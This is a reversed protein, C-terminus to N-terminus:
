KMQELVNKKFELAHAHSPNISLEKDYCDIAEKRRGLFVLANGKAFWANPTRADSKLAKDCCEIALEPHGMMLLTYGKDCLTKPHIPDIKLALDYCVLAEQYRGTKKLIMAIDHWAGLNRPDIDLSKQFCSLAEDHRKLVLLSEGKNHWAYASQPNISIAKDYCRIAEEERGLGASANGKNQWAVNNRPEIALAKDFCEIAKEYQKLSTLAVGKGNWSNSHKPDIAIAKDFCEIAESFKGLAFLSGGKNSWSTAKENQKISLKFRKGTKSTWIPELEERLESFSQYRASSQPQLCRGIIPSLPGALSPVRGTMQLDYIAKLYKEMDGQRPAFFPPVPSGTAMQWLVLGFSYIDSRIDAEECRYVEPPMYAPTGCRINGDNKTVSIGFGQSASDKFPMSWGTSDQLAIQGATALGFDSIKLIRKKTILVNAPKIDRHCRIGNATAHEMGACFQLGWELTEKMERGGSFALHDALSVCGHSDPAIYDIEVFLRGYIEAVWRVAVIFPHDGLSQWLQVEKKFAARASADALLEDHFTKLACIERSDRNLALYVIGFGGKGLVGRIEYTPGVLDGKKYLGCQQPQSAVQLPEQKGFLKDFFGM